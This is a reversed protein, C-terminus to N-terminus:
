RGTPATPQVRDPAAWECHSSRVDHEQPAQFAVGCAPANHGLWPRPERGFQESTPSGRGTTSTPPLRRTRGTIHTKAISRCRSLAVIQLPALNMACLEDPSSFLNEQSGVARVAMGLNSWSHVTM